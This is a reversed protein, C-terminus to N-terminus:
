RDREAVHAIAAANAISVRRASKRDTKAARVLKMADRGSALRQEQLALVARRPIRHHTGVPADPLIGENVWRTVMPRSVGLLVAAEGPTLTIDDALTIRVREAEDPTLKHKSGDAFVVTAPVRSRPTASFRAKKM